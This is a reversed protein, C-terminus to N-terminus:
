SMEADNRRRKNARPTTLTPNHDQVLSNYPGEGTPKSILATGESSGVVRAVPFRPTTHLEHKEGSLSQGNVWKLGESKPQTGHLISTTTCSNKLALRNETPANWYLRSNRRRSSIRATALKRDKRKKANSREFLRLIIEARQERLCAKLIKAAAKPKDM